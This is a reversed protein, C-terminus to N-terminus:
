VVKICHRYISKLGSNFMLVLLLTLYNSDLWIDSYSTAVIKSRFASLNFVDTSSSSYISCSVSGVYEDSGTLCDIM